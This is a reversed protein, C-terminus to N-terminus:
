ARVKRIVLIIAMIFAVVTLSWILLFLFSLEPSADTPAMVKNAIVMSILPVAIVAYAIGCIRASKQRAYPTNQVIILLPLMFILLSMMLILPIPLM